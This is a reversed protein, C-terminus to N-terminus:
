PPGLHYFENKVSAGAGVIVDTASSGWVAKLFNPSQVASGDMQKWLIGDYHHVFGGDSVAYVDDPANGWIGQFMSTHLDTPTWNRGNYHLVGGMTAAWVDNASFVHLDSISSTVGSGASQWVTGNLTRIVGQEGCVFLESGAGHISSLNTTVGSSMPSWTFGDFHLIMGGSGVAYVDQDSTGWVGMMDVVGSAMEKWSSGNYRYIKENLGVLYASNPSNAWVAAFNSTVSPTAMLGWATGNYHLVGSIGAAFVNNPGTGHVGVVNVNGPNANATWVGGITRFSWVFGNTQHGQDDSADVKWYYKAGYQLQGPNYITDPYATSVLPPAPTSGFYVDHTMQDGDPDVAHWTLTTQVPLDSEEHPPSPISAQAPARNAPPAAKVPDQSGCGACFSVCLVVLM